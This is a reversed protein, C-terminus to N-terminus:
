KKDKILYPMTYTIGKPLDVKEGEFHVEDVKIRVAMGNETISYFGNEKASFTVKVEKVEDNNEINFILPKPDLVLEAGGYDQRVTAAYSIDYKVAGLKTLIGNAKQDDKEFTNVIEKMPFQAIKMSDKTVVMTVLEEKSLENYLISVKGKYTGPIDELKVPPYSVENDDLCSVLVLSLVGLTLLAFVNRIKKLM